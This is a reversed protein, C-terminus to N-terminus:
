YIFGVFLGDTLKVPASGDLSVRWVSPDSDFGASARYLIHNEDIWGLVQFYGKNIEALIQQDGTGDSPAVVLKGGEDEPNGRGTGYVVLKGNPSFKTSGAFNQESVAPLDVVSGTQLNQIQITKCGVAVMSLDNSISNVCMNSSGDNIYLDTIIGSAPDYLYLNNWGGFLIYGGIGSAKTGFLLKGDATWEYIEFTSPMARTEEATLEYVRVPNSGDANALWLVVNVGMDVVEETVWAIRSADRSFEVSSVRQQGAFDLQRQGDFEVLTLGQNTGYAVSKKTTGVSADNVWDTSDVAAEFGMPQGYYDIAKYQGSTLVMFGGNFIPMGEDSPTPEPEEAVPSSTPDPQTPLPEPTNAQEVATPTYSTLNCAGLIIILPFILSWAAINRHIGIRNKM